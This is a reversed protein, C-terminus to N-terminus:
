QRTAATISAAPKSAPPDCLRPHVKALPGRAARSTDVAPAQAGAHPEPVAMHAQAAPADVSVWCLRHSVGAPVSCSLLYGSLPSLSLSLSLSLSFSFSLSLSFFLLFSPCLLAAQANAQTMKSQRASFIADELNLCCVDM